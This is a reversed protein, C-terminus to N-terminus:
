IEKELAIFHTITQKHNLLPYVRLECVYTSGDKRYNVLQATLSKQAKLRQRIHQLICQDTAEGQLFDPKRNMLEAPSYGTMSEINRSVWVIEKNLNTVVVARKQLCLYPTVDVPFIWDMQQILRKLSQWERMAEPNNTYLFEPKGSAIDWSMLPHYRVVDNHKRTDSPIFERAPLYM